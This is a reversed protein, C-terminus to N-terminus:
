VQFGMCLVMRDRANINEQRKLIMDVIKSFISLYSFENKHFNIEELLTQKPLM